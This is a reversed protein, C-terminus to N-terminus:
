TNKDKNIITWIAGFFNWICSIHHPEDTLGQCWQNLHRLGSDTFSGGREGGTIPIGHKWNDVGYKEAGHEYHIALDHLMASFGNLFDEFNTEVSYNHTEDHTWKGYSYVYNVLNIITESYKMRGISPDQYAAKIIDTKSTTMNGENYFCYWADDLITSVVDGPILDYRGKGTKTYRIAGGDFSAKEGDMKLYNEKNEM